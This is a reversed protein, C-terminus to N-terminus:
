RFVEVEGQDELDALFDEVAQIWPYPYAGDPLNPTPSLPVHIEVMVTPM